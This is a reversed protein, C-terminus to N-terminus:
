LKELVWVQTADNSHPTWQKVKCDNEEVCDNNADLVKGSAANKIIYLNTEGPIKYFLWVQNLNHNGYPLNAEWLQLRTNNDLVHEGDIEAFKTICKM